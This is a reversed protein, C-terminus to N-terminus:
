AAIPQTGTVDDQAARPRLEFPPEADTRAGSESLDEPFKAALLVLAIYLGTTFAGCLGIALAILMFKQWPWENWILIVLALTLAQQLGSGVALSFWTLNENLPETLLSHAKVNRIIRATLGPM